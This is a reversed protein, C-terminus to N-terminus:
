PASARDTVWRMASRGEPGSDSDSDVWIDYESMNGDSDADTELAEPLLDNYGGLFM